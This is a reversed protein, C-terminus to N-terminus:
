KEDEIRPALRWFHRPLDRRLLMYFLPFTFLLQAMILGAIGNGIQTIAFAIPGNALLVLVYVAAKWAFRDIMFSLGCFIMIEIAGFFIVYLYVIWFLGHLGFISTPLLAFASTALTIGSWGVERAYSRALDRFLAM